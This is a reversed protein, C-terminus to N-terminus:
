RKIRLNWWEFRRPLIPYTWVNRKPLVFLWPIYKKSFNVSCVHALETIAVEEVSDGPLLIAVKHLDGFLLRMFKERLSVNKCTVIKSNKNSVSISLNHKM